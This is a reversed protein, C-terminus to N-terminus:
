RIDKYEKTVPKKLFVESLFNAAYRFGTLIIGEQELRRASAYVFFDKVFKVRGAKALRRAINTDEGYFAIATDFGGITDLASKKAAFNGGYITNGGFFDAIITIYIWILVPLSWSSNHLDYLRYPGSLCVLNNDRAFERRLVEFWNEPIRADADVFALVDGKAELLGKQRARTLGKRPERVVRVLGKFGGAIEATGDTSGNDVVIVELLDAPPNKLISALCDKIYKEENYACVIVSIKM